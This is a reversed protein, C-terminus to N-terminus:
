RSCFALRYSLFRLRVPFGSPISDFLAVSEASLGTDVLLLVLISGKSRCWINAVFYVLGFFRGGFVHLSWLM